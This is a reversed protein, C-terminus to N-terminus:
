RSAAGPSEPRKAQNANAIAISADDDLAFAKTMARAAQPGKAQPNSRPRM